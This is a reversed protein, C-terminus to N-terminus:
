LRPVFREVVHFVVVLGDVKGDLRTGLVHVVTKQRVLGDVQYVFSACAELYSTLLVVDSHGFRVNGVHQGLRALHLRQSYGFVIVVLPQLTQCRPHQRLNVSLIFGDPLHHLGNLHRACSQKIVVLWQGRQQEDSRRTNTLGLHCAYQGLFQAYFQYAEVHAFVRLFMRHGLENTRRRTIHTVLIATQQCIGNALRGIGHQQEVLNLFRM